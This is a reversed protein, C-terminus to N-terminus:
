LMQLDYKEVHRGILWTDDLRKTILLYSRFISSLLFVVLYVNYSLYNSVMDESMSFNDFLFSIVRAYSLNIPEM